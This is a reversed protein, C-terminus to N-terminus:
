FCVLSRHFVTVKISYLVYVILLSILLIIIILNNNNNFAFQGVRCSRLDSGHLHPVSEGDFQFRGRLQGFWCKEYKCCLIGLELRPTLCSLIYIRFYMLMWEPLSKRSRAPQRLLYPLLIKEGTERLSTVLDGPLFYGFEAWGTERLRCRRRM